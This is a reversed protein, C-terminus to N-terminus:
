APAVDGLPVPPELRGRRARGSAALYIAGAGSALLGSTVLQSVGDSRSGTGTVGPALARFLGYLASSAAGLAILVAVFCVLYLFVQHVRWAASRFFGDDRTLADLRPLHMALLALAVLAVLGAQVASAWHEDDSTRVRRSRVVQLDSGTSANRPFTSPNPAFQADAGESITANDSTVVDAVSTAIAFTAFLALFLTVFSVACLYSAYPRQGDPDPEGRGAVLFVVVILVLPVLSSLLSLALGGGVFM